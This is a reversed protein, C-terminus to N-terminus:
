ALCYRLKNLEEDNEVALTLEQANAWLSGSDHHIM